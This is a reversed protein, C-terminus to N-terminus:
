SAEGSYQNREPVPTTIGAEAQDHVDEHGGVGGIDAKTAKIFRRVLAPNKAFVYARYSFVNPTSTVPVREATTQPLGSLADKSQHYDEITIRGKGEAPGYQKASAMRQGGRTEPRATRASGNTGAFGSRVGLM